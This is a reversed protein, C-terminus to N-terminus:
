CFKAMSIERAPKKKVWVERLSHRGDFKCDM